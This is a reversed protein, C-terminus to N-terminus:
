KKFQSIYKDIDKPNRKIKYLIELVDSTSYTVTRKKNKKEKYKDVNFKGSEIEKYINPNNEIKSYIPLLKQANRISLRGDFIYGLLKSNFSTFIRVYDSITSVSISNGYTEYIYDHVKNLYGREITDVKHNEFYSVVFEFNTISRSTLNTGNYVSNENREKSLIDCIIDSFMENYGFELAGFNAYMTEMDKQSISTKGLYLAVYAKYRRHGSSIFYKIGRSKQKSLYAYEESKEDIEQLYDSISVIVIPQQLGNNKIDAVLAKFTKVDDIYYNKHRVCIENLPIKTYQIKTYGKMLNTIAKEIERKDQSVSGTIRGLKSM